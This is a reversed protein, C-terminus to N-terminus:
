WESGRMCVTNGFKISDDINRWFMAKTLEAYGEQSASPSVIVINDGILIKMCETM